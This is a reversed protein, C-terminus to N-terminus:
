EAVPVAGMTAVIAKGEESKVYEIFHKARATLIGKYAFSLEKSFPYAGNAINASDPSVGNIRLPKLISKHLITVTSDTLGVSWATNLIAQPVEADKYAIQWRKEEISRSIADKWGPILQYLVQNSSDHKERIIVFIPKQNSWTNKIGQHIKLLEETTINTDPVAAPTAFVIGVKAYPIIKLGKKIEGSTLPRSILGLELAGSELALTAGDTGISPPIEVAIGFKTKYAEALIRTVPLNTGSGAVVFRETSFARATSPQAPKSQNTTCGALSILGLVLICITVRRGFVDVGEEM